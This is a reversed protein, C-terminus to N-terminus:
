TPPTFPRATWPLSWVNTNGNDWTELREVDARAQTASRPFAVPQSRDSTFYLTRHDPGFRPDNDEGPNVDDGAYRLPSVGTWGDGNRFAIFMRERDEGAVRGKSSFVVWSQDPAVEPDVDKVHGDSFSLPEAKRYGSGSKLSRYMRLNMGAAQAVFYISGDAAISCRFVNPTFNVSAPLEVPAGWANARRDVRWLHSANGKEGALQTPRVSVFLLYSGDPSFVPSSDSWQGSFPAIGPASWRAGDWHSEEIVSWRPGSRTFFLQHGDPSFTPTGDGGPGSVTGPAFIEPAPLPEAAWAAGVIALLWWM